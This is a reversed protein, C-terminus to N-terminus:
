SVRTRSSGGPGGLDGPGAGPMLKWSFDARCASELSLHHRVRCFCSGSATGSCKELFSFDAASMAPHQRELELAVAELTAPTHLDFDAPDVHTFHRLYRDGERPHRRTIINQCYVCCRIGSAGKDFATLVDQRQTAWLLRAALACAQSCTCTSMATSSSSGLLREAKSSYAVAQPLVHWWCKSISRQVFM